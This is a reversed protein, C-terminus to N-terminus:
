YLIDGVDAGIGRQWNSWRINRDTGIPSVHRVLPEAFRTAREAAAISRRIDDLDIKEDEGLLEDNLARVLKVISSPILRRKAQAKLAEPAISGYELLANLMRPKSLAKGLQRAGILATLVMGLSLGGGVAGGSAAGGVLAGRVINGVGINSLTKVGQLQIRRVLTQQLAPDIPHDGLVKVLAQLQKMTNGAGKLVAAAMEPNTDIKTAAVLAEVNLIGGGEKVASSYADNLWRQSAMKYVRPGILGELNKLFEPNRNRFATDFLEVADRAGPEFYRDGSKPALHRRQWFAKNVQSFRRGAPNAVSRWFDKNTKAAVGFLEKVSQAAERSVPVMVGDANKVLGPTMFFQDTADYLARNLQALEAYGDDGPNLNDLEKRVMHQLDRLGNVSQMRDVLSLEESVWKRITEPPPRKVQRTVGGVTATTQLGGGNIEDVVDLFPRMNVVKNNGYLDNAAKYAMKYMKDIANISSEGYSRAAKYMRDSVTYKDLGFTEPLMSKIRNLLIDKTNTVLKEYQKLGPGRIGPIKLFAPGLARVLGVRSAAYSPALEPIGLTLYPDLTDRARKLVDGGGMLSYRGADGVARVTPFAGQGYTEWGLGSEFSGKMGTGRDWPKFPTGSWTGWGGETERYDKNWPLALSAQHFATGIAPPSLLGGLVKLPYKLGRGIGTADSQIAMWAPITGVAQGLLEAKEPTTQEKLFSFAQDGLTPPNTMTEGLVSGTDEVTKEIIDDRKPDFADPDPAPPAEPIAGWVRQEIGSRNEFAKFEDAARQHHAPDDSEALERILKEWKDRHVSWEDWSGFASKDAM